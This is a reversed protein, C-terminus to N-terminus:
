AGPAPRPRHLRRVVRAEVDYRSQLAPGTRFFRRRLAGHVEVLDGARLRLASRRVPGSWCTVEITDVRPARTRGGAPVHEARPSRPGEQGPVLVQRPVVVRLQVIQDGSPLE